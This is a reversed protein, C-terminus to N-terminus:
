RAMRKVADSGRKEIYLGTAPRDIRLGQLNYYEAPAQSKDCVVADVGTTVPLHVRFNQGTSTWSGNFWGTQGVWLGWSTFKIVNDDSIYGIEEASGEIAEELSYGYELLMAVNSTVRGEGFGDGFDVGIPSNEVWVAEPNEAHIYIYHNHEGHDEMWNYEYGAYPNVLRYFGPTTVHEQLEAQLETQPLDEYYGAFLDENYTVNGLSRWESDDYTDGYIFAVKGARAYGDADLAAVMLSHMGHASCELTQKGATISKGEAVIRAITEEDLNTYDNEDPEVFGPELLYVLSKVSEGATITVPVLNGDGCYSYELYLSYDEIESGAEPLVIKFDGERNAAHWLMDPDTIDVTAMCMAPFSIVGESLTGYESAEGEDWGSEVVMHSFCFMEEYCDFDEMWVKDKNEAHIVMYADDPYGFLDAIPNNGSYPALRYLGKVESDEEIDVPWSLEYPVGMEPGYYTLLGEYYVGKGISVWEAFAQQTPIALLLAALLLSKIKRM